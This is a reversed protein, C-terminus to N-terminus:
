IPNTCLAKLLLNSHESSKCFSEKPTGDKEVLFLILNVKTAFWNRCKTTRLMNVDIYLSRNLRPNYSKKHSFQVVNKPM